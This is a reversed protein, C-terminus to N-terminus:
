RTTSRRRSCTSASPSSTSMQRQASRGDAPHGREARRRPRGHHRVQHVDVPRTGQGAAAAPDLPLLPRGAAGDSLEVARNRSQPQVRRAQGGRRDGAGRGQAPLGADPDRDDHGADGRPDCPDRRRFAPAAMTSTTATSRPSSSMRCGWRPSRRASTRRSTRISRVAAHRHRRQLLRLRAHLHRGHDHLDRAEQGLVRRHEPLRGGRLGHRPQAVERDRPNGPLRAVGAGQRPDLRAQAASGPRAPAGKRPPPRAATALTDLVTVM